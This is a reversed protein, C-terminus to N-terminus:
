FHRSLEKEVHNQVDNRKYRQRNNEIEKKTNFYNERHLKSMEQRENEIKNIKNKMLNFLNM